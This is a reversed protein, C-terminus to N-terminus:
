ANTTADEPAIPARLRAAVCPASGVVRRLCVIVCSQRGVFPGTMGNVRSTTERAGQTYQGGLKGGSRHFLTVDVSYVYVSFRELELRGM